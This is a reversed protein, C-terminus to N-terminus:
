EAMRVSYSDGGLVLQSIHINNMYRLHCPM